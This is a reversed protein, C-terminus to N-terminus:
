VHTRYRCELLQACAAILQVAHLEQHHQGAWATWKVPAGRQHGREAGLARDQQVDNGGDIPAYRNDKEIGALVKWLGQGIAIPQHRPEAQRIQDIRAGILQAEGLAVSM